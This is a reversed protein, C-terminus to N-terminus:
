EFKEKCVKLLSYDTRDIKLPTITIYNNTLFYADTHNDEDPLAEPQGELSYATKGDAEHPVFYDYYRRMGAVCCKVGEIQSMTVSPVNVSLFSDPQVIDCLKDINKALFDCATQFYPNNKNKSSLAISKVRCLCGEEAAGITGSYMIDTAINAGRNPGAIVLDPQFNFLKVGMVVCDAPTGFIRYAVRAGELTCKEYSIPKHFHIHHSTASMEDCPACVYIEHNDVALRKVLMQLGVSHIGDDNSILIRM